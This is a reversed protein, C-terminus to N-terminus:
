EKWNFRKEGSFNIISAIFIAIINSALFYIGFYETLVFLLGINTAIGISRVINSRIIGKAIESGKKKSDFTFSNNLFFMLIIASEIAFFSSLVYYLNFHETLVYLIGTNVLAGLAGIAAFRGYRADFPVPSERMRLDALNELMVLGDKLEVDSSGGEEWSIGLEEIHYGSRKAYYILETDWFWGDESIDKKIKEWLDKRFLKLGCQHDKIGTSLTQNVAFNYFKSPYLRKKARKCESSDLYRSGIVMDNGNQVSNYARLVEKAGIALDSDVFGIIDGKATNLGKEIAKGKGLRKDSHIHRINTNESALRRSEEATGDTCGDEVILIEYDIDALSEQLELVFKSITEVENYVPLILSLKDM